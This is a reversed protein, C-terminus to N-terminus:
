GEFSLVGKSIEITDLVGEVAIGEIVVINFFEGGTRGNKTLLVDVIFRKMIDNDKAISQSLAM